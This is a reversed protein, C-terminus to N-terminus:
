SQYEGILVNPFLPHIEKGKDMDLSSERCTDMTQILTDYLISSESLILVSKATPNVNKISKMAKALSPFDYEKESLPIRLLPAKENVIIFGKPTIAITIQVSNVSADKHLEKEEGPLSLSIIAIQSFVATLLLFPILILFLNLVPTIMVGQSQQQERRHSLSSFVKM